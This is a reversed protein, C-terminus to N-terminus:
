RGVAAPAGPPVSQGVAGLVERSATELPDRGPRVAIV